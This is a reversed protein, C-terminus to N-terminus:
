SCSPDHEVMETVCYLTPVSAADDLIFDILQDWSLATSANRGTVFWGIPTLLAAYSYSREIPGAFTKDWALISGVEYIDEGYAGLRTDIRALEAELRARRAHLNATSSHVTTMPTIVGEPSISYHYGARTINMDARTAPHRAFADVLHDAAGM